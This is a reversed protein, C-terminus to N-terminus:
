QQPATVAFCYLYGNGGTRILNDQSCGASPHVSNWSTGPGGTRDFHGLQVTGTANSSYNNCTHDQNDTYARGDLTSGTLIDHQNPTDGFGKITNGNEDLATAKTLTNGLRAQDLTDGHLDGVNQAIRGGKANFWPGSGIRDRASVANPGQSSVYAHWTRNGAGAAAALNQCWQDAGAVGGYNAGDGKSKSTVFFSMPPPPGKKDGQALALTSGLTAVVFAAAIFRFIKM